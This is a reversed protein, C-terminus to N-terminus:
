AAELNLYTTIIYGALAGGWLVAFKDLMTDGVMGMVILLVSLAAIAIDGLIVTRDLM